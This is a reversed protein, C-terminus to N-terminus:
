TVCVAVSTAWVAALLTASHYWPPDGHDWGCGCREAGVMDRMRAHSESRKEAGLCDLSGPGTM